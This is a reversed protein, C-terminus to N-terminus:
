IPSPFSIGSWWIINKHDISEDRQDSHIATNTLHPTIAASKRELWGRDGTEAPLIAGKDPGIVPWEGGIWRRPKDNRSRHMDPSSDRIQVSLNRTSRFPAKSKGIAQLAPNMCFIKGNCNGSNLGKSTRIPIQTLFWDSRDSIWVRNMEINRHHPSM